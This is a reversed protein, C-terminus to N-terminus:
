LTNTWATNLKEEYEHSLTLASPLNSIKLNKIDFEGIDYSLTVHPIYESFDSTANHKKMLMKQYNELKQSSLKLILCKTKPKNEGNTEWVLFSHPKCIINDSMSGVAKLNPLNKRSYLITVHIKDKPLSNPVKNDECFQELANYSVKDFKMGLYSGSEEMLFEKFSKIM